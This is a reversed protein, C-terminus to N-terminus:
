DDLLFFNEIKDFIYKQDKSKLYPYCPLSLVNKSIESANKLNKYICKNKYFSNQHVLKSYYIKSDIKQNNLYKLLEDRKASLISYYSYVSNNYSKVKHKILKKNNKIKLNIKDIRDNYYNTIKKRKKIETKFLKLKELLIIAQFTDLRGAVGLYEFDKKSKGHLRLKSCLNAIKNSNTFIAGGDGYCGLSKTPFFSTCSINVYDLSFKDYHKSGFSQAADEIIQLNYKKALINIKKLDASQGFISVPLIAKTKNTISLSIKDADINFTDKDIDVLVPVAGLSIITEVTSIFTFPSTIIEDGAKIGISMLSILLADTGSSVSICHKANIFNSLKKELENVKKGMIFDSTQFFKKLEIDLKKKILKHQDKFDFLKIKKNKM